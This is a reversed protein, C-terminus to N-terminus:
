SSAPPTLGLEVLRAPLAFVSVLRAEEPVPARRHPDVLLARVGARTPGLHGARYTDGVSVAPAPDARLAHWAARHVAPHTRVLLGTEARGPARGLVERPFATGLDTM